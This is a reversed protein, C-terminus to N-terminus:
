GCDWHGPGCFQNAPYKARIPSLTGRGVLFIILLAVGAVGFWAVAWRRVNRETHLRVLVDLGIGSLISLGLAVGMLACVWSVKGLVPLSSVLLNVPPFFVIALMTVTVVSFAIVEPRRFRISVALAALVM